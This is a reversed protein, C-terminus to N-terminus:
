SIQERAGTKVAANDDVEESIDNKAWEEETGVLVASAVHISDRNISGPTGLVLIRVPFCFCQDPSM